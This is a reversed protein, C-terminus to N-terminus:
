GKKRYFGLLCKIIRGLGKFNNKFDTPNKGVAMFWYKLATKSDSMAAYVTVFYLLFSALAKPHLNLFDTHKEMIRTIGRIKRDYNKTIQDGSHVHYKVLPEEVFEFDWNQAIRIWVDYDQAAPMEVDFAGCNMLSATRLLPFSTSGVFNGQTLLAEYCNEKICMPKNIQEKGSNDDVTLTSSYVLGITKNEFLKVQSEIKQPLWEDDDDLFGIFEGSALALGTNRAACAGSCKDHRIYRANPKSEVMARNKDRDIFDPTSDDVVILEINEYTQNVVSDVARELMQTNRNHTTIVATVLPSNM